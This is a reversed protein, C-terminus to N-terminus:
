IIWSEEEVIKLLKKFKERCEDLPPFVYFQDAHVLLQDVLRFFRSALPADMSLNKRCWLVFDVYLSNRFHKHIPWGIYRGVQPQAPEIHGEELMIKIWGMIASLECADRKDAILFKENHITHNTHIDNPILESPKEDECEPNKTSTILTIFGSWDICQQQNM